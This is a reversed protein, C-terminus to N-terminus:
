ATWYAAAQMETRDLGLARLRARAADAEAEEAVFWVYRSGAAAEPLVMRDLAELLGTRDDRTLWTLTVGPPHALEQRDAANGAPRDGNGDDRRAARRPRAGDRAARDRRRVARGLRGAAHPQRRSRHDGGHRGTARDRDLRQDPRGRAPLRRVRGLRGRHRHRARYLGPQAAQARGGALAGQRHRRGAAM